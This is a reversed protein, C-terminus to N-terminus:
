NKELSKDIVYIPLYLVLKVIKTKFIKVSLFTPSATAWILKSPVVHGMQWLECTVLAKVMNALDYFEQMYHQLM